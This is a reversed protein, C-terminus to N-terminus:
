PIQFSDISHLQIAIRAGNFPRCTCVKIRYHQVIPRDIFIFDRRAMTLMLRYLAPSVAYIIQYSSSDLSHHLVIMGVITISCVGFICSFGSSMAVRLLVELFDSM